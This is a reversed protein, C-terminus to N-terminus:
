TSWPDCPNDPWAQHGGLALLLAFYASVIGVVVFWASSTGM